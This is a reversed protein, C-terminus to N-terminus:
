QPAFDTYTETDTVVYLLISQAVGAAWSTTKVVTAWLPEKGRLELSFANPGDQATIYVPQTMDPFQSIAFNYGPSATSGAALTPGMGLRILARTRTEDHPLIQRIHRISLGNSIGSLDETDTFPVALLTKRVVSRAPVNNAIIAVEVAKPPELEYFKQNGALNDDGLSIPTDQDPAFDHSLTDEDFGHGEATGRSYSPIQNQNALPRYIQKTTGPINPM